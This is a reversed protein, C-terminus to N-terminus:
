QVAEALEVRLIVGESDHYLGIIRPYLWLGYYDLHQEQLHMMIKAASCSSHKPVLLDVIGKEIILSHLEKLYDSNASIKVVKESFLSKLLLRETTNNLYFPNYFSLEASRVIQGRPWLIGQYNCHLDFIEEENKTRSKQYAVTHTFINLAWELGTKQELSQWQEFLQLLELDSEPHSGPRLIRSYLLNLFSQQLIFGEKLLFAQLAINAEKRQQYDEAYRVQSFHHQLESSKQVRLLLQHLQHDIQEHEGERLHRMFVNLVRRPDEAYLDSLNAIIGCGGQEAETLWINIGQEQREIDVLISRDDADNLLTFLTQSCVAALTNETVRMALSKLDDLVDIDQWLATAAQTLAALVNNSDFLEMLEKQLVQEEGDNEVDSHFLSLPISKLLEQGKSHSLFNVAQHIIPENGDKIEIIQAALAAMYCEFIWNATFTNNFLNCQNLRQKFLLIRMSKQVNADQLINQIDEPHIDFSLCIGDVWQRAGIAATKGDKKWIFDINRKDGSKLDINAKTVFSYRTVEVPTAHKHLCFKIEKLYQSWVGEPPKEVRPSEDYFNALWQISANSKDKLNFKYDLVQTNIQKPRYIHLTKGESIVSGEEYLDDRFAENMEFYYDGDFANKPNFGKPILWDCSDMKIAYRKSLRGPAFERIGQYFDLSEWKTYNGRVLCIDVDPVNLDAFLAEPIFEPLPSRGRPIGAWEQNNVRWNTKLQRLISPIVSLMLSRPSEWLLDQVIPDDVRLAKKLYLQFKNFELQDDILGEVRQIVSNLIHRPKGNYLPYKFVNWISVNLEKSLWDLLAMAAQMKQIHRNDLPLSRRKVQPNILEEYRQFMYRDRGFESLVVILWPRMERSRGARGKRQLFSAVGRPAKHQIVAGVEPDNFGVELSATAVVVEAQSDVGGDQSSTRSVKARDDLELTHGIQTAIRWDQGFGIQKRKRVEDIDHNARLAALPGKKKLNPELKGNNLKWGEADVLAHFLRNNVDLDDTFIFTKTGWIGKSIKQENDLIRRTLMSTQITTSLLASQSVPDGRLLLIYEAGEDVMEDHSPELLVVQNKQAGILTAFFNSADSLTASLGVFHPNAQSIQLWRRLLYATQAGTTGEYTHVEDMLVMIPKQAKYGIGFLHQFRPNVLQQNLMETTTFLIDPQTQIQAERTLLIEDEAVTFNCQSCCLREIGKEVDSLRWQMKGLCKPTSCHLLDYNETSKKTERNRIESNISDPTDGFLTGIRLKRKIKAQTYRDLDRCQKWTEYFQDKLLERRPYIALIRVGPQSNQSLHDVLATLGPLYFSMTKGSGTGACVISGSLNFSKSNQQKYYEELIRTLSRAQFGSLYFQDKLLNDLIPVFRKFESRAFEQKISIPDIDRRPYSRPRRVFRFDSVLTKSAEIKQGWFLQRQQKFLHVSEAMRTRYFGSSQKAKDPHPVEILIAQEILELFITDVDYKFRQEPFKFLVDVILQNVETINFFSGTDGWALMRIEHEEFKDLCTKLIIQLEKDSV